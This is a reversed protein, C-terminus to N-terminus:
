SYSDTSVHVFMSTLYTWLLSNMRSCIMSRFLSSSWTMNPNVIFSNATLVCIFWWDVLSAYNIVVGCAWKQQLKLSLKIVFNSTLVSDRGNFNKLSCTRLFIQRPNSVEFLALAINAKLGWCLSSVSYQMWKFQALLLTRLDFFRFSNFHIFFKSTLPHETVM